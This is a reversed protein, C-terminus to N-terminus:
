TATARRSEISSPRISRACNPFTGSPIFVTQVYLGLVALLATALARSGRLRLVFGALAPATLLPLMHQIRDFMAGAEPTNVRLLLQTVVATWAYFSTRTRAPLLASVVLVPLWVNALSRYDNFWRQPLVLIETNYYVSRM